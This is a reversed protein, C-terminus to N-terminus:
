TILIERMRSQFRRTFKQWMGAKLVRFNKPAIHWHIITCHYLVFLPEGSDLCRVKSLGPIYLMNWQSEWKLQLLWTNQSVHISDDRLTRVDRFGIMFWQCFCFSTDWSSTRKRLMTSTGSANFLTRSKYTAPVSVRIGKQRRKRCALFILDVKLECPLVEASCWNRLKWQQSM